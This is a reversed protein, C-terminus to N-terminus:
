CARRPPPRSWGPPALVAGVRGLSSRRVGALGGFALAAAMLALPAGGPTDAAAHRAAGRDGGLGEAGADASAASSRLARRM